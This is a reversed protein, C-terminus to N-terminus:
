GLWCGCLWWCCSFCYGLSAGSCAAPGESAGLPGPRRRKVQPGPSCFAWDQWGMCYTQVSKIKVHTYVAQAQIILIINPWMWHQTHISHGLKDWTQKGTCTRRKAGRKDLDWRRHNHLPFRPVPPPPTESFDHQSPLYPLPKLLQTERSQMSSNRLFHGTDTKGARGHSYKITVAQKFLCCRVCWQREKWLLTSMSFSYLPATQTDLSYESSKKLFPPYM